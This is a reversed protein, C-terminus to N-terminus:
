LLKTLGSVAAGVGAAELSSQPSSAQQTPLYPALADALLPLSLSQLWV